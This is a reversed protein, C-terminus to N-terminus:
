RVPVERFKVVAVFIVIGLFVLAPLVGGFLYWSPVGLPFGFPDDTRYYGLTLFTGVMVVSQVIWIKMILSAESRCIRFDDGLALTKGDNKM